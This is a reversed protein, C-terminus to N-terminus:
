SSLEGTTRQMEKYFLTEEQLVPRLEMNDRENTREGDLTHSVHPWELLM